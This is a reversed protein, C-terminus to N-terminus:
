SEAGSSIRNRGDAKAKYMCSDAKKIFETKDSIQDWTAVGISATITINKGEIKFKENEILKRFNEAVQLAGTADTEPLIVAFEEGGYRAPIDVKRTNNLLIGSFRKLVKDGEQHGYVDNISKFYDIDIMLLSINSNYRKARFMENELRSQFYSHLFLNTLGDKIALEYLEANNFSIAAMNALNSLFISNYNNFEVKNKKNVLLIFGYVRSGVTLPLFIASKFNASAGLLIPFRSVFTRKDLIAAKEPSFGYDTAVMMKGPVNIDRASDVYFRNEGDNLFLVGSEVEAVEIFVDMIKNKLVSKELIGSLEANAKNLAYLDNRIMELHHIINHVREDQVVSSSLKVIELGLGMAPCIINYDCQNCRENPTPQFNKDSKIKEVLGNIKNETLMVHEPGKVVTIKKDFNLMYLSLMTPIFKYQKACALQYISLQLDNEVDEICPMIKAIKYDIIEYDDGTKDIRDIRGSLVTEGFPIRFYEEIYVPNVKIDATRYFRELVSYAQSKWDSEEEKSAFGKSLWGDELYKQLNPLTREALNETQFFKSLAWHVGENFSFYPRDQRYVSGLEDVFHFKYKQPCELYMSLSTFNISTHPM